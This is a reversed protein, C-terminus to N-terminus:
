NCGRTITGAVGNALPQVVLQNAPGALVSLPITDEMGGSILAITTSPSSSMYVNYDIGVSDFVQIGLIQQPLDCVSYGVGSILTSGDVRFTDIVKLPVSSSSGGPSVPLGTVPDILVVRKAKQDLEHERHHVMEPPLLNTTM